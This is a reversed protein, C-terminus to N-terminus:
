ALARVLKIRSESENAKSEFDFWGIIRCLTIWWEGVKSKQNLKLKSECIFWSEHTFRSECCILILGFWFSDIRNTRKSLADFIFHNASTFWFDSKAKQNMRAFRFESLSDIRGQKSSRGIEMLKSIKRYFEVPLNQFLKMTWNKKRFINKLHTVSSSDTTISSFPM